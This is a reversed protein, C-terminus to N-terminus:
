MKNSIWSAKPLIFSTFLFYLSYINKKLIVFLELYFILINSLSHLFKIYCSLSSFNPFEILSVQRSVLTVLLQKSLIFKQQELGLVKSIIQSYPLFLFLYFCTLILLNSILFLAKLNFKSFFSERYFFFVADQSTLNSFLYTSVRSLFCIYNM